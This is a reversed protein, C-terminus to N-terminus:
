PIREGMALTNITERARDESIQPNDMEVAYQRDGKKVIEPKLGTQEAHRFVDSNKASRADSFYDNDSRVKEIRAPPRPAGRTIEIHPVDDGFRVTPVSISQNQPAEAPQPQETRAEQQPKLVERAAELRMEETENRKDKENLDRYEALVENRPKGQMEVVVGKLQDARDMEKLL